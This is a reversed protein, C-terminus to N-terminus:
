NLCYTCQTPDMINPLKEINEDEVNDSDGDEQELSVPKNYFQESFWLNRNTYNESNTFYSYAVSSVNLQTSVYVIHYNTKLKKFTYFKALLADLNEEGATKVIEGWSNMKIHERLVFIFGCLMRNASILNLLVDYHADNHLQLLDVSFYDLEKFFEALTQGSHTIPKTGDIHLYRVGKTDHSAADQPYLYYTTANDVSPDPLPLKANGFRLRMAPDLALHYKVIKPLHELVQDQLELPLGMM